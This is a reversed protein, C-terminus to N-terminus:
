RMIRLFLLDELNRRGDIVVEICVCGKEIKYIVRWPAIILERYVTIGHKALEPVVRGRKPNAYLGDIKDKINKVVRRASDPSEQAIFDAIEFLDQKAPDAWEISYENM